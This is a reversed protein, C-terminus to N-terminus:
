SVVEEDKKIEFTNFFFMVSVLMLVIGFLVLLINTFTAPINYVSLQTAFNVYGFMMFVVIIWSVLFKTKYNLEM